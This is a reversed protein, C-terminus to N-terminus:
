YDGGGGGGGFMDMGGELADVEEEKPAAAAAPADGGGGGAAASAGGGGGGGGASPGAFYKDFDGCKETYQAFLKTYYSPVTNNTAKIVSDLSDATVDAGCDKLLITAMSVVLQDKDVGEAEFSLPM